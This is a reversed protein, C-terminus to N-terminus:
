GPEPPVPVCARRARPRVRDDPRTPARGEAGEYALEGFLVRDLRDISEFPLQGEVTVCGLVQRGVQEFLLGGSLGQRGVPGDRDFAEAVLEAVPTDADERGEARAHVRGPRHGQLLHEAVAGADLHLHHVGVVTDDQAEGVDVVQRPRFLQEGVGFLDLVQDRVLERVGRHEGGEEALVGHTGQEHRAAIRTTAVREPRLADLGLVQEGRHSLVGAERDDELGVALRQAVDEVQGAQGLQHTRHAAALQSDVLDLRAAGRGERAREDEGVDGRVQVVLVRGQGFALGLGQGEVATQEALQQPLGLQALQQIRVDQGLDLGLQLPEMGVALGTIAVLQVIEQARHTIEGEVLQLM